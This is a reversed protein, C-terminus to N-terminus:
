IKFTEEFRKLSAKCVGLSRANANSPSLPGLSGSSKSVQCKGTLYKISNRTERLNSNTCHCWWQGAGPFTRGVGVVGPISGSIYFKKYHKFQSWSPASCLFVKKLASSCLVFRLGYTRHTSEHLLQTRM